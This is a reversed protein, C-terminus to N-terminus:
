DSLGPWLPRAWVLDKGPEGGDDRFDAGVSYLVFSGDDELRYRAPQGVFPDLPLSGLFEPQLEALERPLCHHRLEHRRIALAAIALQRLSDCKAFIECVGIIKPSTAGTVLHRYGSLSGLKAGLNAQYLTMAPAVCALGGPNAMARLSDIIRQYHHLCFLTDREAWLSRWLALSVRESWVDSWSLRAPSGFTTLATSDGRRLAGIWYLDMAREAQCSQEAEKIFSLREYDQGSDAPPNRMAERIISVTAQLGEIERGMAQWDLVRETRSNLNTEAWGVMKRGSGVGATKRVPSSVQARALTKFRSAAVEITEMTETHRAPRLLDLEEFTFREGRARMQTMWRDVAGQRRSCLAWAWATLLLVGM